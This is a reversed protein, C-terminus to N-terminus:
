ARAQAALMPQNFIRILIFVVSKRVPSRYMAEYTMGYILGLLATEFSFFQGCKSCTHNGPM